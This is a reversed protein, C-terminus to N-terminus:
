RKSPKRPITQSQCYDLGSAKRSPWGSTDTSFANYRSSQWSKSQAIKSNGKNPRSVLLKWTTQNWGGLQWGHLLLSCYNNHTPTQLTPSPTRCPVAQSVTWTHLAQTVLDELVAVAESRSEARWTWLPSWLDTLQMSMCVHTDTSDNHYESDNIYYTTVLCTVVLPM